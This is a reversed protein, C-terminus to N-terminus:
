LRTSPSSGSPSPPLSPPPSLYSDTEMHVTGTAEVSLTTSEGKACTRHAVDIESVEAEYARRATIAAATPTDIVGVM